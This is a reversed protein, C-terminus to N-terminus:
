EVTLSNVNQRKDGLLVLKWKWTGAVQQMVDGGPEIM